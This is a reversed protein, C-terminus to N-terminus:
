ATNFSFADSCQAVPSRRCGLSDSERLRDSAQNSCWTKWVLFRTVRSLHDSKIFIGAILSGSSCLLIRLM